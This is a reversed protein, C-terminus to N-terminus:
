NKPRIVAEFQEIVRALSDAVTKDDRFEVWRPLFLSYVGSGAPPMINNFKVTMITNMLQARIAHIRAREEDSFGSVNVKLKRDSTACEISGFTAANKGNGPNFGIIELDVDCEVKLKAMEKSTGDFWISEPSKIITGERGKAVLEFYHTYAEEMSHVIRTEILVISSNKDAAAIYKGLAAFRESYATEFRGGPIAFETPIIDWVMYVPRDSKEFAGGKNVHGLIGNGIERALIEGNREVLMEGIIRYDQTFMAVAEAILQKFPDSPSQKGSRSTLIATGDVLDCNQFMGDGKLNSYVGSAWDWTHVKAAKLLSCNHVLIDDAFYNHVNEVEIDYKQGSYAIKEIKLITKM